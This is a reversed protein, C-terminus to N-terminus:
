AVCVGCPPGDTVKVIQMTMGEPCEDRAGYLYNHMDRLEADHRLGQRARLATISRQAAQNESSAVIDRVMHALREGKWLYGNYINPM